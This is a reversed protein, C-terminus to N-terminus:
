SYKKVKLAPVCNVPIIGFWFKCECPLGLAVMRCYEMGVIICYGTFGATFHWIIHLTMGLSQWYLHNMLWDCYTMDLVWLPFGIVMYSMIGLNSIKRGIMGGSNKKYMIDCVLYCNILVASGYTLFFVVFLHQFAYYIFTNLVMLVVLFSPLRPYKLERSDYEVCLYNLLTMLYVMPLEDSSQFIWHLTGHLGASGVGILLLIAYAISHRLEGSPNGWVLGILGFLSIGALSSWTNHFEVISNTHEYNLECFDISSSHPEWLGMTTHNSTHNLYFNM